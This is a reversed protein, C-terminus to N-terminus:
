HAAVDDRKNVIMFNGRRTLKCDYTKLIVAFVQAPDSNAFEGTYTSDIGKGVVVTMGQYTALTKLIQDISAEHFQFTWRNEQEGEIVTIAPRKEEVPVVVEAPAPPMVQPTAPASVVNVEPVFDPVPMAAEASAPTTVGDSAFPSGVEGGPFPVPINVGLEAEEPKSQAFRQSNKALTAREDMTPMPGAIGLELSSEPNASAVQIPKYRTPEKEVQVESQETRRDSNSDLQATSAQEYPLPLHKKKHSLGRVGPLNPLLLLITLAFSIGMAWFAVRFPNASMM